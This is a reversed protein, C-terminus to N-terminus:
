ATQGPSRLRPARSCEPVQALEYLAALLDDDRRHLLEREDQILDTVLVAGARERDDDVFRVGALPSSM